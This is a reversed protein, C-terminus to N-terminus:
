NARDGDNQATEAETDAEIRTGTFKLFVDDLSPQRLSIEDITHGGQGMTLAVSSLIAPGNKVSLSLEQEFRQVQEVGKIGEATKQAAEVDGKIHVVIVDTGVAEKMEHPTGEAAILGDNIIAIRDAVTDAEELYQTTLFITIGHQRNIERVQEWVRKRSLPDLGTTPEDLFLVKPLHMTSLALDLRRKMGGSYTKIQRNLADGIDILNELEAIRRKRQASSLGYLRGQLTLMEYGTQKNDLSLEQLAVGIELKVKAPQKIVDLGMITISGSTPLLLTSLVRVLTSKGAGNPGLFGFIEGKRVSLSVGKLAEVKEKGGFTRKVDRVDVALDPDPKPM